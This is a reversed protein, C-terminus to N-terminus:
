SVPTSHGRLNFNIRDAPSVVDSTKWGNSPMKTRTIGITGNQSGCGLWGYEDQNDGTEKDVEHSSVSTSQENIVTEDTAVVTENSERSTAADGVAASATAATHHPVDTLNTPAWTLCTISPTVRAGAWDSSEWLIHM